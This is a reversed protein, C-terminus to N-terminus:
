EGYNLVIAKTNTELAKNIDKDISKCIEYNDFRLFLGDLSQSKIKKGYHFIKQLIMIDSNIQNTDKNLDEIDKPNYILIYRSNNKYFNTELAASIADDFSMNEIFTHAKWMISNDIYKKITFIKEKNDGSPFLIFSIFAPKIDITNLKKCVNEIEATSCKTIDMVLYYTMCVRNVIEQKIEALSLKDKNKEYHEKSFGMKCAYDHIVYYNNVIDIKKTDKIFEILKNECPNDSSAANAFMCLECKTNTIM